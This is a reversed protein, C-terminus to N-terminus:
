RVWHGRRFYWGDRRHVWHEPVYRYGPRVRVWYGGAWIHRHLRYDWRWYGPAWVYGARPPPVRVYRPPPPAVGITVGVAVQAAQTPPTYGIGAGAALGFAALLALKRTMTTMCTETMAADRPPLRFFSGATTNNVYGPGVREAPPRPRAFLSPVPDWRESPHRSSIGSADTM